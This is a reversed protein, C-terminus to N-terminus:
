KTLLETIRARLADAEEKSSITDEVADMLIQYELFKEKTILHYPMTAKFLAVYEMTPLEPDYLRKKVDDAIRQIDEVTFAEQFARTKNLTIVNKSGKPRAM